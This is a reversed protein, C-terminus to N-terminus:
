SPILHMATGVYQRVKWIGIIMEKNRAKRLRYPGHWYKGSDIKPIRGEVSPQLVELHLGKRGGPNSWTKAVM